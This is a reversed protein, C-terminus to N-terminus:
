APVGIAERGEGVAVPLVDIVKFLEEFAAALLAAFLGVNLDFDKLFVPRPFAVAMLIRIGVALMRRTGLLRGARVRTLLM